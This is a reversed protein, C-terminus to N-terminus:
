PEHRKVTMDDLDIHFDMTKNMDAGIETMVLNLKREVLKAFYIGDTQIPLEIEIEELEKTVRTLDFWTSIIFSDTQNDAAVDIIMEKKLDKIKKKKNIDIIYGHGGSVVCATGINLEEVKFNALDHVRFMGVWEYYESTTFLVYNWNYGRWPGDFEFIVEEYEGATPISDLKKTRMHMLWLARSHGTATKSFM